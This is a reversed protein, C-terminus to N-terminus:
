KEPESPPLQVSAAARRAVEASALCGWVFYEPRGAEALTRVVPLSPWFSSATDARSLLFERSFMGRAMPSAPDETVLWGVGDPNLEYLRPVIRVFEPAGEPFATHFSPGDLLGDVITPDGVVIGRLLHEIWGGTEGLPVFWLTWDLRPFHPFCLPLSSSPDNIQYLLPIYTWPGDIFYSGEISAVPRGCVGTIVAFLGYPIAGLSLSNLARSL